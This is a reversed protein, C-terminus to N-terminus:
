FARLFKPLFILIGAIVAGLATVLVAGAAVDKAKQALPHYHPCSLNVALELATNFTEAALVLTVTLILVGWEWGELQFYYGLLFVAVAAGLHIAMNVQTRLTYLLGALAAEFKKIM